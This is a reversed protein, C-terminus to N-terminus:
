ISGGVSRQKCREKRLKRPDADMWVFDAPVVIVKADCQRRRISLSAHLGRLSVQRDRPSFNQRASRVRTSAGLFISCIKIGPHSMSMKSTNPELVSWSETYGESDINLYRSRSCLFLNIYVYRSVRSGDATVVVVVEFNVELSLLISSLWEM